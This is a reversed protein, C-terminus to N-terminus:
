THAPSRMMDTVLTKGLKALHKDCAMEQDLIEHLREAADTYGLENALDVLILYAAMEYHEARRAGGILAIDRVAPEDKKEDIAENGEEIIGAMGACHKGRPKLDVLEFVEELIAVHGTTEELHSSFAAELEPNSSSRAMQKLAKVLRKEFDYADRLEDVFIEHVADSNPM